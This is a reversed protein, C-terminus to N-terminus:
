NYAFNLEEEWNSERIQSVADVFAVRFSGTGGGQGQICRYAREGCIGVIGCAAVSVAFPDQSNAGCYAGMLASLMCGSGTIKGMMPHGNQLVCVRSGDTIVDREGSAVTVTGLRVSLERLLNVWESLNENTVMDGKEADVGNTSRRGQALCRLESTNGRIISMQVQQLLETAAEMRFRSAGVGVPDFVVPIGKHNAKKGALLMAKVKSSSPNGLNLVLADACATIEEVEEPSEAMTPRGGGALIINACDNITISNTIAHILPGKELTRQVIVSLDMNGLM